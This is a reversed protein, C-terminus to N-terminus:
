YSLFGMERCGISIMFVTSLIIKCLVLKEAFHDLAIDLGGLLTQCTAM